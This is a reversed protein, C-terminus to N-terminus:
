DGRRMEWHALPTYKVSSMSTPYVWGKLMQFIGSYNLIDSTCFIVETFMFHARLDMRLMADTLYAICIHEIKTKCKWIQDHM